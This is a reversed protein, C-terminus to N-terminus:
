LEQYSHHLHTCLLCSPRAFASHLSVWEITDPPFDDYRYIIAFTMPQPSLLTNNFFGAKFIHTRTCSQAHDIDSTEHYCDHSPRPPGTHRFRTSCRCRQFGLSSLDGHLRHSRITAQDIVSLESTLSKYSRPQLTQQTKLNAGDPDAYLTAVAMHEWMM